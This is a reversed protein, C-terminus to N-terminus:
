SKRADMMADAVIYASRAMMKAAPEAISIQLEMVTLAAMALRDRLTPEENLAIIPGPNMHMLEDETPQVFQMMNPHVLKVTGDDMEVIAATFVGPGAEFEEYDSGWGKFVGRGIEQREYIRKGVIDNMRTDVTEFVIVKRAYIM